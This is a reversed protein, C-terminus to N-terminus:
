GLEGWSKLGKLKSYEIRIEGSDAAAKAAEYAGTNWARPIQWFSVVCGGEATERMRNGLSEWLDRNKVPSNVSTRWGRTAWTGMYTTAGNALYDSNTAIIVREWGEHSWACFELAAIAARLKARQTTLIHLQNNPGMQELVGKVIGEPGPKYIFAWGGRANPCGEDHCVGHTMLLMTKLGAIRPVYRRRVVFRTSLVGENATNIPRPAFLAMPSDDAGSAPRFVTACWIGNTGEGMAAQARWVLAPYPVPRIPMFCPRPQPGAPNGTYGFMGPIEHLKLTLPPIAGPVEFDGDTDLVQRPNDEEVSDYNSDSM